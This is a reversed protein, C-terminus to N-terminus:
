RYSTHGILATDLHAMATDLEWMEVGSLQDRVQWNGNVSLGTGM